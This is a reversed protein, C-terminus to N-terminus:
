VGIKETIATQINSPIIIRYGVYVLLALSCYKIAKTVIRRTKSTEPIANLKEVEEDTTNGWHEVIGAVHGIGVIAVVKQPGASTVSNNAWHYISHALFYNREDLLVRKFGPFEGGLEELMQELMDKEKFKEVDEQTTNVDTTLVSYILKMKQWLSVSAVARAITVKLSRDGLVVRCGPINRAESAGSRFESGPALGLKETLNASMNLLIIYILGQAVGKEALVGRVKAFSLRRNQELLSQEDLTLMFAREQCLELVVASPKIERIVKQVDEVSKQSFHATGILFVEAGSATTLRTLTDPLITPPKDLDTPNSSSKTLPVDITVQNAGSQEPAEHSTQQNVQQNHSKQETVTLNTEVDEKINIFINENNEKQVSSSQEPDRKKDPQENHSSSKFGKKVKSKKKIGAEM